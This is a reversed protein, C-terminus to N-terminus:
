TDLIISLLPYNWGGVRYYQYMFLVIDLSNCKLKICIIFGKGFRCADYCNFYYQGPEWPIPEHVSDRTESM